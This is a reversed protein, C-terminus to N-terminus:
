LGLEHRTNAGVIGDPRMNRDAQFAIVARRTGRGFTGDATIGLKTQLQKVDDGEDGIKLDRVPTAPEPAAAGAPWEKLIAVNLPPKGQKIMYNLWELFMTLVATVLCATSWNKIVTSNVGARHVNAGIIGEHVPGIEEARNNRNNDRYHPWSKAQRYAPKGKHLGYTHSGYIMWDAKLVACGLHNYDDFHKLGYSGANTTGVRAMVFQPREGDAAVKYTFCKDDFMDFADAASRIWIDYIGKKWGAFGRASGLWEVREIVEQDTFARM